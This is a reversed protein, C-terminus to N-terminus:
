KKSVFFRLLAANDLLIDLWYNMQEANHLDNWHSFLESYKGLARTGPQPHIELMLSTRTRDCNANIINCIKELGAVGYFCDVSTRGNHSFPIPITHLFSLHDCVGYPSFTSSPHGDHLHFHLPLDLKCLRELYDFVFVRANAVAAEIDEFYKAYSPDSPKLSCIDVNQNSRSFEIRCAQIAIHSVDICIGINKMGAVSSAIEYFTEFGLGAAYEVFLVSSLNEDLLELRPLVEPMSGSLMFSDHVVMGNILVPDLLSYGELVDIASLDALDINRPLHATCYVGDDLFSRNYIYTEPSSPHIEAGIGGEAFRASALRFLADDGDIMRNFIAMIQPANKSIVNSNNM